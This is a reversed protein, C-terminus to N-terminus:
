IEGRMGNWYTLAEWIRTFRNRMTERYLSRIISYSLEERSLKLDRKYSCKVCKLRNRSGLKENPVYVGIQMPIFDKLEEYLDNSMVLYNYNAYLCNSSFKYFEKANAIFKYQKFNGYFDFSLADAIYYGGRGIGVRMCIFERGYVTRLLKNGYERLM